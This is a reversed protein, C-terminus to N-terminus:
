RRWCWLFHGCCLRMLRTQQVCDHGASQGEWGMGMVRRANVPLSRATSVEECGRTQVRRMQMSVRMPPQKMGLCKVKRGGTGRRENKEGM